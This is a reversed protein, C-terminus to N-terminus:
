VGVLVGGRLLDERRVEEAMGQAGGSGFADGPCPLLKVLGERVRLDDNLVHDDLPVGGGEARAYTADGAPLWRGHQLDEPHAVPADSLQPCQGGQAAVGSIPRRGERRLREYPM